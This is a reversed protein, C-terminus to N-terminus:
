ARQPTPESRSAEDEPPATPAEAGTAEKSRGAQEMDAAGHPSPAPRRLAQRTMGHTIWTSCRM